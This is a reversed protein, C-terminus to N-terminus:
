AKKGRQRRKLAWQELGVVNPTSGPAPAAAAQVQAAGTMVRVFEARAVLPSGDAKEKVLRCLRTLHRRRASAM